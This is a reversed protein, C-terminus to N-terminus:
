VAQTIKTIQGFGPGQTWCRERAATEGLNAFGVHQVLCLPIRHRTGTCPASETCACDLTAPPRVHDNKLRQAMVKFM